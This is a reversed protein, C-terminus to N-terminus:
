LLATDKRAFSSVAFIRSVSLPPSPSRLFVMVSEPPEPNASDAGIMAKEPDETDFPKAPTKLILM